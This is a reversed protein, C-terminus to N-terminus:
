RKIKLIIYFLILLTEALCVFLLATNSRLRLRQWWTLKEFSGVPNKSSVTLSDRQATVLRITDHLHLTDTRTSVRDRYIYDQIRVTDAQAAEKIYRFLYVTDASARAALRDSIRITDHVTKSAFSQKARCGSLATLCLLACVCLWSIKKHM